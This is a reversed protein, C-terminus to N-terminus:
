QQPSAPPRPSAQGTTDAPAPPNVSGRPANAINNAPPTNVVPANPQNSATNTSDTTGGFLFVLMLVLVVAGAIWGWMANSGYDRDIRAERDLDGDRLPDPDQYTM